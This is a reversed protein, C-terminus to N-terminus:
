VEKTIEVVIRGSGNRDDEINISSVPVYPNADTLVSEIFAVAQIVTDFYHTKIKQIKEM